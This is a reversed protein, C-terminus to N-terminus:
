REVADQNHYVEARTLHYRQCYRCNYVRLKTGRAQECKARIQEAFKLTSYAKKKGCEGIFLSM